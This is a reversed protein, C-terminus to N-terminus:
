REGQDRGRSERDGGIIGFGVGVTEHRHEVSAVEGAPDIRVARGLRPAHAVAHDVAGALRDASQAGYALVLIEDDLELPPVESAASIGSEKDPASGDVRGSHRKQAADLDLNEVMAVGLIKLPLVALLGVPKRGVAVDEGNM